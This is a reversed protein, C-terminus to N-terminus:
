RTRQVPQAANSTQDLFILNWLQGGRDHEGVWLNIQKAEM